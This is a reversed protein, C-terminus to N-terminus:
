GARKARHQAPELAHDADADNASSTPLDVTTVAVRVNGAAVRKKRRHRRWPLSVDRAHPKPDVNGRVMKPWALTFGVAVMASCTALLAVRVSWLDAIRLAFLGSFGLLIALTARVRDWRRLTADLDRIHESSADPARAHVDRELERNRHELDAIREYAASLQDRYTRDSVNRPM